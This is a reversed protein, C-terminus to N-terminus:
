ILIKLHQFFEKTFDNDKKSNACGTLFCLIFILFLIHKRKIIRQMM